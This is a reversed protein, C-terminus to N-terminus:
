KVDEYFNKQCKSKCDSLNKYDYKSYKLSCADQCADRKTEAYITKSTGCGNITLLVLLILLKM